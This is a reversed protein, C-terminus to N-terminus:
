SVRKGSQVGDLERRCVNVTRRSIAIGFREKLLATIKQDTLHGEEREVLERIILKRIDKKSPFFFNLPKEVQQPTEISKGCIARSVISEDAQIARALEKQSFAVLDRENGSRLYAPQRKIIETLIQYLTSKRANIIELNKLIWNMRTLEEDSFQSAKKLANYRNYDIVYKGRTFRPSYFKIAFGGMGDEQLLAVKYYTIRSEYHVASPHYFEGHVSLMDLVANVKQAADQSIGCAAGAAELSYGEDNYLFYKEFNPAGITRIIDAVEKREHMLKEIDFSGEDRNIEEKFEYLNLACSANAFRQYCVVRPSQDSPAFLRKFVPDEEIQKVFSSFAHEPLKMLTAVRIRTVLRQRQKLAISQTQRIRLDM